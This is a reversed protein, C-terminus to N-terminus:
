PHPLAPTWDKMVALPPLDQKRWLWRRYAPAILKDNKWISYQAVAEAYPLHAMYPNIDDSWIFYSDDPVALEGQRPLLGSPRRYPVGNVTIADPYFRVIDGACAFIRGFVMGGYAGYAVWEGRQLSKTTRLPNMLVPSGRVELPLVIRHALQNQFLYSCLLTAGIAGLVARIRRPGGDLQTAAMQLAAVASISQAASMALLAMSSIPLGIWVWFVAMAALWLFLLFAGCVIGFGDRARDFFVMGPVVLWALLRCRSPPEDTLSFPRGEM